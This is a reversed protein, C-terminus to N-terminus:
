FLLRPERPCVDTLEVGEGCRMTIGTLADDGNCEIRQDPHLIHLAAIISGIGLPKGKVFHRLQRKVVVLDQTTSLLCQPLLNMKLGDAEFQERLSKGDLFQLVEILCYEIHM